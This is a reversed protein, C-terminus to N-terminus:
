EAPCGGAGPLTPYYCRGGPKSDPATSTRSFKTAWNPKSDAARAATAFPQPPPRYQQGKDDARFGPPLKFSFGLPGDPPYDLDKMAWTACTKQCADLITVHDSPNAKVLPDDATLACGCSSGNSKCFNKPLCLGNKPILQYDTQDKFDVIVVLIGNNCGAKKGTTECAADDNYHKEWAAPWNNPTFSGIPLVSLDPRVANVSNIDFGSGVYIQYTQRTAQKAFVFFVYYTENENFVNVSRPNCPGTKAVDCPKITTFNETEWQTGRSVTTDLFFTGHNVTLTSRQYTSQGGMRVFPWRCDPASPNSKCNQRYWKKWERTSDSQNGKDDGTLFQRYLPTGYCSENSCEKSWTGGRGQQHIYRDVPQIEDARDSGCRGLPDGTSVACEPYIVTTVYDYPSTTATPPTSTKCVATPTVGVNSLCEATEIPANFFEAPNVSITGTNADNTLGTLSGDDDNLETQRDIDTYGQFFSPAFQQNLPKCYESSLKTADTLYTNPQFLADIVYHRIDVNDFFLNTSHFTPPYYFGNPQKWGIAANPLYCRNQNDKRVGATSAYMRCPGDGIQDETGCDTKVIDFYANSDEYAPGDYINFLRQNVGFGTLPMSIGEEKSLCYSPPNKKEFVCSVPSGKNFPGATAALPNDPQTAGVFISARSLAWDGEIVASRSYDGSTVFTLGSNQVDTLVANDVLYWQPRLWIAAFNKEAWHFSSTYHDLVTVACYDEANYQPDGKAKNACVSIQRSTFLSCDYQGGVLPCKTATRSGGAAVHPYYTDEDIKDPPQPAPAVSRIAALHDDTNAQPDNWRVIGSCPSTNGVVQFSNMTSTAYNGYFAKLPTSGAYSIDQQLASFGSWKMRTDFFRIMDSGVSAVSNSVTVVNGAVSKIITGAPIHGPTTVDSISMGAVVFAPLNDFTITFDKSSSARMVGRVRLVDSRTSNWAPVLWYATGCTGAGVAMNGVFDNWGNTIWFVAPHDYDSKYPFAEDPLPLGNAYNDNAALIGPVQRPNQINDVAARAFIGINSYFKNDTETGDELYYGHGISKYGVNGALTVGQTAHIVMWRTMSENVSSDRVYSDAPTRRAKHFHVPYHGIRGGQGMQKFEVGWIQVKQFGQRFVAHAGFYYCGKKVKDPCLTRDSAEQFTEGAIDGASVIRISRSLLAVAARTEIGEEVLRTDINLRGQAGELREKVQYREGSHPWKLGHDVELKQVWGGDPTVEQTKKTVTLLESHGPLYDTTTVVIEDKPQFDTIWPRYNSPADVILPTNQVGDGPKASARLRTWSPHTLKLDNCALSDCTGKDGRLQLTGGYSVALTKAGFYGVAGGNTCNGNEWNSRDADCKEDGHLPGYQYFYDHVGGPLDSFETAGNDAWKEAPIGCPTGVWPDAVTKCLAGQKPTEQDKGYLYITMVGGYRGFPETAGAILAGNNEIIISSAWLEFKGNDPWGSEEFVLKGKEVINVNGYFYDTGPAIKCEGDVLLDPQSGQTKAQAPLLHDPRNDPCRVLGAQAWAPAGLTLLWGFLLAFFLSALIFKTQLKYAGPIFTTTITAVM